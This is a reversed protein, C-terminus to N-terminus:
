DDGESRVVRKAPDIRRFIYFCAVLSVLGGTLSIISVVDESADFVGYGVLSITAVAVTAIIINRLIWWLSQLEEALIKKM